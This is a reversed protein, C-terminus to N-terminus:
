EKKLEEEIEFRTIQYPYYAYFENDENQKFGSLVAAHAAGLFKRYEEKNVAKYTMALYFNADPLKSFQKLTKKLYFEAEAFQKMELHLIGLYLYSNYHATRTTDGKTQLWVDQLLCKKSQDYQKLELYCLGKYFWYSHDMVFNNPSLKEAEDFDIIAGEYDKSFICKLFARYDLWSKPDLEVAKDELQFAKGYDGSKIYPIARQRYVKAINPCIAILSDYYLQRKLGNTEYRYAGKELYKDVLSDQVHQSSCDLTKNQANCPQLLLLSLFLTLLKEM